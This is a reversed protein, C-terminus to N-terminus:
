LQGKDKKYAQKTLLIAAKILTKPDKQASTKFSIPKEWQRQITFSINGNKMFWTYEGFFDHTSEHGEYKYHAYVAMVHGDKGNAAETDVQPPEPNWHLRLFQTHFADEIKELDPVSEINTFKPAENLIEERVM